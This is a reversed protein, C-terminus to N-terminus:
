AIGAGEKKLPTEEENDEMLLKSSKENKRTPVQLTNDPRIQDRTTTSDVPENEVDTEKNLTAVEKEVEKEIEMETEEKTPQILADKVTDDVAEDVAEDIAGDIKKSVNITPVGEFEPDSNTAIEIPKPEFLKKYKDVAEVESIKFRLVKGDYSEVVSQPISFLERNVIGRQTLVQGNSVEQVEGFDADNLGRAEKKIVDMWDISLSM